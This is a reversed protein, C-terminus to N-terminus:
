CQQSFLTRITKCTPSKLFLEAYMKKPFIDFYFICILSRFPNCTSLVANEVELIQKKGYLLEIVEEPPNIPAQNFFIYAHKPFPFPIFM